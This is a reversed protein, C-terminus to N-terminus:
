NREHIVILSHSRVLLSTFKRGGMSHGLISVRSHDLPLNAQTLMKPLEDVIMSAMNYHKSYASTTADLYFGAGTGFDWDTEEGEIGAGRPSTDPFVVALNHLACQRLLGSKFPATDPDCTLGALYVLYPFQTTSGTTTTTSPLFLNFQTTLGGLTKSTFEYKTIFGEFVKNSSFTKLM